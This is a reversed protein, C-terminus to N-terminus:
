LNLRWLILAAITTDLIIFFRFSIVSIESSLSSNAVERLGHSFNSPQWARKTAM